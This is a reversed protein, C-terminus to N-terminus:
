TIKKREEKACCRLKKVNERTLARDDTNEKANTLENMLEIVEKNKSDLKEEKSKVLEEYKRVTEDRNRIFVELEHEADNLSKKIEEMKLTLEVCEDQKEKMKKEVNTVQSQLIHVVKKYDKDMKRNKDETLLLQDKVYTLEKLIAKMEVEMSKVTTENCQILIKMEKQLSTIEKERDQEHSVVVAVQDRLESEKIMRAEVLMGLDENAKLFHKVVKNLYFNLPSRLKKLPILETDTNKLQTADFGKELEVHIKDLLVSGWDGDQPVVEGITIGSILN